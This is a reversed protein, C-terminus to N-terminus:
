VAPGDAAQGHDVAHAAALNRADMFFIFAAIQVLVAGAGAAAGREVGGVQDPLVVRLGPDEIKVPVDAGIAPALLFEVGLRRLVLHHKEAELGPLLGLDQPIGIAM